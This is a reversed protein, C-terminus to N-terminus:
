SQITSAPVLSPACDTANMAAYSLGFGGGTVDTESYSPTHFDQAQLAAYPTVGLTPLVAYRYGGELTAGYSQADFNATLEDGLAARNTTMWHNAFALAAALYAPGSRTIGYVGTQFADSRGSGGTALGWDTGGGGLAFGFITDPSYHYDMGAAFGYTQASLNSSGVASNGNTLNAGGYAAGWTTWRQEFPTSPPAKLVGAYALAVDPPLSALEEPAFGM